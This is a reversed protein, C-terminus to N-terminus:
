RVAVGLERREAAREPEWLAIRSPSITANSASPRGLKAASGCRM